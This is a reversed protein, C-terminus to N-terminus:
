KSYQPIKSLSTVCKTLENAPCTPLQGLHLLYNGVRWQGNTQSHHSLTSSATAEKWSEGGTKSQAEVGQSRAYPISGGGAELHKMGPKPQTGPTYGGAKNTVEVAPRPPPEKLRGPDQYVQYDEVATGGINEQDEIGTVEM